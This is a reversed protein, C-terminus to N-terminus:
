NTIDVVARAIYGDSWETIRNKDCTEHVRLTLIEFLAPHPGRYKLRTQVWSILGCRTILTSSGEVFSCRFFLHLIKELINLTVTPSATFSLIREFVNCKRYLEM